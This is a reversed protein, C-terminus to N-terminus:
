KAGALESAALIEAFSTAVKSDSEQCRGFYGSM